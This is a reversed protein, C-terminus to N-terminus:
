QIKGRLTNGGQNWRSWTPSIVYKFLSAVPEGSDRAPELRPMVFLADLIGYTVVPHLHTLMVPHHPQGNRDVILEVHVDGPREEQAAMNNPIVPSWEKDLVARTFRGYRPEVVGFSPPATGKRRLPFERLLKSAEGYPSLDKERIRRDVNQAVYWYWLAEDKRGLNAAAAARFFGVEALIRKLQRDHWGHFLIEEALKRAGRHGAKWKGARLKEDVEELEHEWDGGFHRPGAEATTSALMLVTFVATIAQIRM